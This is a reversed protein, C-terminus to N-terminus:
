SKVAPKPQMARLADLSRRAGSIRDRADRLAVLAKRLVPRTMTVVDETASARTATRIDEIARLGTDLDAALASASKEFAAHKERLKGADGALTAAAAPDPNKAAADQMAVLQKELGDRLSARESDLKEAANRLPAEVANMDKLYNLPSGPEASLGDLRAVSAAIASDLAAYGADTRVANEAGAAYRDDLSSCGAGALAVLALLLHTPKRSKM